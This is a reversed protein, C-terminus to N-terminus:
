PALETTLPRSLRVLNPAPSHIYTSRHMRKSGCSSTGPISTPLQISRQTTEIQASHASKFLQTHAASPDKHKNSNQRITAAIQKRTSRCSQFKQDLNEPKHVQNIGKRMYLSNLPRSSKNFHYSIISILNISNIMSNELGTNENVEDETAHNYLQCNINTSHACRM